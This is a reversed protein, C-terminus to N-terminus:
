MCHLPPVLCYFSDITYFIIINPLFIFCLFLVPLVLLRPPLSHPASEEKLTTLSSKGPNEDSCLSSLLPLYAECGRPFLTRWLSFSPVLTRLCLSAHLPILSAMTVPTSLALLITHYPCLPSRKCCHCPFGQEQRFHIRNMPETNYVKTIVWPGKIEQTM